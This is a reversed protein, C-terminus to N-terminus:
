LRIRAAPVPEALGKLTADFRETIHADGLWGKRYARDALEATVVIEESDAAGQLRAALNVTQGFYDLVKNATVAYCGGTHVGIKLFCDTAPGEQEKHFPKWARQMALAADLADKEDLFAAMIADGITKVIAGRHRAIIDELLDFHAQVVQYARADGAKNYLATSATLDSFLLSIETVKLRRGEGLVEGAFQRRFLNNTSLDFATASQERWVTREFKVHRDDDVASVLTVTAGPAFRTLEGDTDTLELEGESPGDPTLLVPIRLGGRFFFRFRGEADPLRVERRARGAVVWQALVHPTRAPGGSCFQQDVLMRVAANPRFTAEIARDMPLEFDIDCFQCHGAASLEYLHDMRSAATQCSPCVIDWSIDLLGAEVGRLCTNLLEDRPVLWRDAVEYPRIRLLEADHGAEVFDVLRKGLAKYEDDLLLELTQAVRKLEEVAVRRENYEHARAYPMCEVYGDAKCSQYQTDVARLAREMSQLRRKALFSAVPNLLVTVPELRLELSVKTGDGVAETRVTMQLTKTAGSKMERRVRFWRPSEWQYPQELYTVPFGDLKTDVVFRASGEGEVPTMAVSKMGSMRNLLDTDTILPWLEERSSALEFEHTVVIENM